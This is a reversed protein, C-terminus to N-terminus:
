KQEETYSLAQNGGSQKARYMAQDALRVLADINITEQDGPMWTHLGISANLVIRSGNELVLAERKFARLVRGAAEMAQEKSTNPLLAIFEDGAWRGVRDYERINALLLRATLKLAEDGALHGYTDNIPKFKDLDLFLLSLPTKGRSARIIEQRGIQYLARRNMLGTLEDVLAQHKLRESVERLNEELHLIREGVAVRALLERPNFPKKIYDDAGANLGDEIDGPGERATLLMVYVYSTINASRIWRVFSPGDLGPMMWDTIVFRVDDEELIGKAAEANDLVIVDYGGITLTKEIMKRQLADDDVILIKM